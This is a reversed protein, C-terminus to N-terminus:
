EEPDPIRQLGQHALAAQFAAFVGGDFTWGDPGTWHPVDATVDLTTYLEAWSVNGLANTIGSRMTATAPTSAGYHTIPLAGTASLKVNGFTLGGGSDTDWNAAFNNATNLRNAEVFILFHGLYETEAQVESGQGNM